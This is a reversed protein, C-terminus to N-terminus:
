LVMIIESTGLLSAQIDAVHFHPFDKTWTYTPRQKYAQLEPFHADM